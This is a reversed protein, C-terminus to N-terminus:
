TQLISILFIAAAAIINGGLQMVLFRSEGLDLPSYFVRTRGCKEVANTLSALGGGGSFNAM